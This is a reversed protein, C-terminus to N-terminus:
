GCPRRRPFEPLPSTALRAAFALQSRSAREPAELHSVSSAPHRSRRSSSIQVALQVGGLMQPHSAASRSDGSSASFSVSRAATRESTALAAADSPPRSKERRSRSRAQGDAVCSASGCGPPRAPSRRRTSAPRRAAQEQVPRVVLSLIPSRGRRPRTLSWRFNSRSSDTAMSVSPDGAAM